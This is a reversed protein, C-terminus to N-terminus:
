SQMMALFFVQKLGISFAWDGLLPSRRRGERDLKGSVGGGLRGYGWPIIHFISPIKSVFFYWGTGIYLFICFYIEVSPFLHVQCMDPLSPTYISLFIYSIYMFCWLVCCYVCWKGIGRGFSISHPIPEWGNRSYDWENVAQFFRLIEDKKTLSPWNLWQISMSSSEFTAIWFGNAWIWWEVTHGM